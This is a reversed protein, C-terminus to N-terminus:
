SGAQETEMQDLCAIIRAQIEDVPKKSPEIVPIPDTDPKRKVEIGLDAFFTEIEELVREPAACLEGYEVKLYRERHAPVDLYHLIDSHSLAVQACSQTVADEGFYVEAGHPRLSVWGTDDTPTKVKRLEVLSRANDAWDRNIHIFVASPFLELIRPIDSQLIPNKFVMPRGAIKTMAGIKRRIRDPSIGPLDANYPAAYPMWFRWVRGAESPAARGELEGFKSDFSGRRDRMDKRALWTAAVPVRFLRKALNTLYACEFQTVVLEYLLTTGSRPPGVIFCIDTDAAKARREHWLELPTLIASTLLNLYKSRTSGFSILEDKHM